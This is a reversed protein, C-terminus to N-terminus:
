VWLNLMWDFLSWVYYNMRYVFTINFFPFHFCSVCFLLLFVQLYYDILRVGAFSCHFLICDTMIMICCLLRYRYLLFCFTYYCFHFCSVCIIVFFRCITISWARVGTFSCHVIIVDTMYFSYDCFVIVFIMVFLNCYYITGIEQINYGCLFSTALM